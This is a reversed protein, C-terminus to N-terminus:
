AVGASQRLRANTAAKEYGVVVPKGGAKEPAGATLGPVFGMGLLTRIEDREILSMQRSRA